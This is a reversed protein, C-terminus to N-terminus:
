PLSCGGGIAGAAARRVVGNLVGALAMCVTLDTLAHFLFLHRFAEESDALSSVGFEVGAALALGATLWAMKVAAASPRTRVIFVIGGALLGYWVLIHPPWLFFLRIRLDSWSAFREARQGPRVADQRRYNGFDFRLYRAWGELDGWLIQSVRAPHRIYFGALRLYSTRRCFDAFWEADSAPSGAAYATIGIYKTDGPRLGLEELDRGPNASTKALKDFILNFRAEGKYHAPTMAMVAAAMALLAVGLGVGLWRTARRKESRAMLFLFTAPLFAWLAHQSKSGILLSGFLSFGLMLSVRPGKVIMLSAAAVSGLLGVLAAADSYFSNLYAVYLVDTFIWLMAIGVGAAAWASLGRMAVMALAFAALLIAAHVAGMWRINFLEGDKTTRSLYFALAAPWEESSRFDSEWHSGRALVYDAKMYQYGGGADVPVLSFRGAVKAFDGNDAMGIYPPVFIQLSVIALFFAALAAERWWHSPRSKSADQRAM